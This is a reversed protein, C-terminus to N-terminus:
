YNMNFRVKNINKENIKIPAYSRLGHENFDGLLTTWVTLKKNNEEMEIETSINTFITEIVMDTLLQGDNRPDSAPINFLTYIDGLQPRFKTVDYIQSMVGSIVRDTVIIPRGDSRVCKLLASTKERIYDRTKQSFFARDFDGESGAKWGIYRYYDDNFIRDDVVRKPPLAPPLSRQTIKPMTM